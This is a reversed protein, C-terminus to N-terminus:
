QLDHDSAAGTEKGLERVSFYWGERPKIYENVFADYEGSEESDRQGAMFTTRMYRSFSRNGDCDYSAPLLAKRQAWYGPKDEDCLKSFIAETGVCDLQSREM